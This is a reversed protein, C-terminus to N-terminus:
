CPEVRHSGFHAGLPAPGRRGVRRRQRDRIAQLHEGNQPRNLRTAVSRPVGAHELNRVATRRFDHDTAALCAPLMARRRGRRGLTAGASPGFAQTRQSVPVPFPIVVGTPRCRAFIRCILRTVFPVGFYADWTMASKIPTGPIRAARTRTRRTPCRRPSSSGIHPACSRTTSRRHSQRVTALIRLDRVRSRCFRENEPNTREAFLRLQQGSTNPM